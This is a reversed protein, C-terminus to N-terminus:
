ANSKFSNLLESSSILPPSLLFYKPHFPRITLHNVVGSRATWSTMIIGKLIMPPKALPTFSVTVPNTDVTAFAPFVNTLPIPPIPLASRLIGPCSSPIKPEIKFVPRVTILSVTLTPAFASVVAILTPPSIKTEPILPIPFKTDPKALPMPAAPPFNILPKLLSPSPIILRPPENSLPKPVKPAPKIFPSPKTM